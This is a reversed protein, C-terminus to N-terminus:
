IELKTDYRWFPRLTSFFIIPDFVNIQLGSILCNRLCFLDQSASVSSVDTKVLGRYCRLIKFSIQVILVALFSFVRVYNTKHLSTEVIQKESFKVESMERCNGGYETIQDLALNERALKHWEWSIFHLVQFIKCWDEVASKLLLQTLGLFFSYFIVRLRYSVSPIDCQILVARDEYGQFRFVM